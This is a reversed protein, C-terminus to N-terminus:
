DCDTDEESIGNETELHGLFIVGEVPSLLVCCGSSDLLELSESKDLITTLCFCRWTSIDHKSRLTEIVRAVTKSEVEVVVVIENASSNDNCQGCTTSLVIPMRTGICM